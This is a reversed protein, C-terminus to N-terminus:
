ASLLQRWEALGAARDAQFQHMFLSPTGAAEYLWGLGVGLGQLAKPQCSDLRTHDASHTLKFVRILNPNVTWDSPFSIACYSDYKDYSDYKPDSKVCIIPIVPTNVSTM